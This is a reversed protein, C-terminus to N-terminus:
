GQRFRNCSGPSMCLHFNNTPNINPCVYINCLTTTITICLALLIPKFVLLLLPSLKKKLELLTVYVLLGNWFDRTRHGVHVFIQMWIAIKKVTNREPARTNVADLDSTNDERGDLSSCM